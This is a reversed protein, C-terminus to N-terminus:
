EQRTARIRYVEVWSGGDSTPIEMKWRWENNEPPNFTIRRIPGHAPSAYRMVISGNQVQQATIRALGLVSSAAWVIDWTESERNYTRLNTGVNGGHPMWFDQVAVGNGVCVFIWNAGAGSIWLDDDPSLTWDQISWSGVYRGFQAMPGNMCADKGTFPLAAEGAWSQGALLLLSALIAERNMNM